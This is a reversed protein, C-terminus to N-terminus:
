LKVGLPMEKNLIAAVMITKGITIDQSVVPDLMTGLCNSLIEVNGRERPGSMALSVLFRKLDLPGEGDNVMVIKLNSDLGLLLLGFQKALGHMPKGISCIAIFTSGEIPWDM